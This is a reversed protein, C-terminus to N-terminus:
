ASYRGQTTLSRFQNILPQFKQTNELEEILKASKRLLQLFAPNNIHETIFPKLKDLPLVEIFDKVADSFKLNGGEGPRTQRIQQELQSAVENVEFGQQNLFNELDRASKTNRVENVMNGFEQTKLSKVIKQIDSNGRLHKEVLENMRDLPLNQILETASEALNSAYAGSLLICFVLVPKM